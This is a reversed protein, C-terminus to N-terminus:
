EEFDQSDFAFVVYTCKEQLIHNTSGITRYPTMGLILLIANNDCATLATVRANTLFSDAVVPVAIDQTSATGDVSITASTLTYKKYVLEGTQKSWGASPANVGIAVGACTYIVGDIGEALLAASQEASLNVSIDVNNEDVAATLVGYKDGYVGSKALENFLVPYLLVMDEGPIRCGWAHGEDNKMSDLMGKLVNSFAFRRQMTRWRPMIADFAPKVLAAARRFEDNNLRTNAYEDGTKVRDSLGQNIRRVLGDTVGSQQYYSMGGVKGKLQHIGSQKAM